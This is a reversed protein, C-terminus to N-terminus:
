KQDNRGVFNEAALKRDENKAEVRFNQANPFFYSRASLRLRHMHALFQCCFADEATLKRSRTLRAPLGPFPLRSATPLLFHDPPPSLLRVAVKCKMDAERMDGWSPADRCWPM